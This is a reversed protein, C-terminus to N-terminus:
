QPKHPHQPALPTASTYPGGSRHERDLIAQMEAIRQFQIGLEARQQRTEHVLADVAAKLGECDAKLREFEARTPAPM